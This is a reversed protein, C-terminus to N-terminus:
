CSLVPSAALALQKILRAQGPREECPVVASLSLGNKPQLQDRSAKIDNTSAGSEASPECVSLVELERRKGDDWRSAEMRGVRRM